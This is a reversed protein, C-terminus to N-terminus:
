CRRLYWLMRPFSQHGTGEAATPQEERSGRAFPQPAQHQEAGPHKAPSSMHTLIVPCPESSGAWGKWLSFFFPSRGM